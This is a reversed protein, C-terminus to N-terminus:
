PSSPIYCPQYLRPLCLSSSIHSLVDWLSFWGSFVPLSLTVQKPADLHNYNAKPNSCKRLLRRVGLLFHAAGKRNSRSWRARGWAPKGRPGAPPHWDTASPGARLTTSDQALSALTTQRGGQPLQVLEFDRVMGLFFGLIELGLFHCSILLMTRCVRCLYSLVQPSERASSSGRQLCLVARNEDGRQREQHNFFLWIKVSAKLVCLVFVSFYLSDMYLTGTLGIWLWDHSMQTGM